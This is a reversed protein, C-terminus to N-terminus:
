TVKALPAGLRWEDDALSPEPSELSGTLKVRLPLPTDDERVAQLGGSSGGREILGAVVPLVIEDLQCPCCSLAATGSPRLLLAMMDLTLLACRVTPLAVM